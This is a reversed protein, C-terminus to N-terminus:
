FAGWPFSPLQCIWQPLYALLDSRGKDPAHQVSSPGGAVFRNLNLVFWSPFISVYTCKSTATLPPHLCDPHQIINATSVTDGTGVRSFSYLLSAYDNSKGNEGGNDQIYLLVGQLPQASM